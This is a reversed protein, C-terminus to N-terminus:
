TDATVPLLITNPDIHAYPDCLAEGRTRVLGELDTMVERCADVCTKGKAAPRGIDSRQVTVAAIPGGDPSRVPFALHDHSPPIHEFILGRKEIEPM